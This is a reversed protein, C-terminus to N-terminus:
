ELTYVTEEFKIVDGNQVELEQGPVMLPSSRCGSGRPLARGRHCGHVGVGGRHHGAPVEQGPRRGRRLDRDISINLLLLAKYLRGEISTM